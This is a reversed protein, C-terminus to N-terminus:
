IEFAMDLLYEGSFKSFAEKAYPNMHHALTILGAEV